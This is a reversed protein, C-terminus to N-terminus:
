VSYARWAGFGTRDAIVRCGGGAGGVLGAAVFPRQIWLLRLTLTLMLTLEAALGERVGRFVGIMGGVLCGAVGESDMSRVNVKKAVVSVVLVVVVVVVVELAM